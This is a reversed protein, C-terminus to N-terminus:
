LDMRYEKYIDEEFDIKNYGEDIIYSDKNHDIMIWIPKKDDIEDYIDDLDLDGSSDWNREKIIKELRTIEYSDCGYIYISIQIALKTLFM